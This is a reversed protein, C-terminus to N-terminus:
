IFFDKTDELKIGLLMQNRIVNKLMQNSSHNMALLERIRRSTNPRIGIIKNDQHQLATLDILTSIGSQNVKHQQSLTDNPFSFDHRITDIFFRIYYQGLELNSFAYHGALGESTTSTFTVRLPIGTKNYLVVGIDNTEETRQITSLYQGNESEDWFVFGSIRGMSEDASVIQVGVKDPEIALLHQSIGQTDTYLVDAAFSNWAIANAPVGYPALAKFLLSITEGPLLPQDVVEIKVSQIDRLTDPSGSIWSDSSGIRNFENGFRIPDQSTSYSTRFAFADNSQINPMNSDYIKQTTVESTLTLPFQSERNISPDIIASDMVHPLIDIFEISDLDANGTNKLTIRYLVEEGALTSALTDQPVFNEDLLGKVEKRSSVSVFFLIINTFISSQAYFDTTSSTYRRLMGISDEYITVNSAVEGSSNITDLLFFSQINGRATSRAKVTFTLTLRAKQNYEVTTAHDFSFVLLTDSKENYDPIIVPDSIMPTIADEFYDTLSVQVDGIYELEQPLFFLFVPTHLRSGRCNAGITYHFREGPRIPQTGVSSTFTPTLICIDQILTTRNTQNTSATANAYYALDMQCLLMSGLAASTKVRGDLMPARKTIMGVPLSPFEWTITRLFDNNAIMDSTMDSIMITSNTNTNYTGFSGTVGSNTRYSITYNMDVLEDLEYLAYQGTTLSAFVVAEPLTVMWQLTNLSQNGANAINFSYHILQNPLTYEPGYLSFATKYIPTSITTNDLFEEQLIDDIYWLIDTGYDQDTETSDLIKVRYIFTYTEGHFQPLSFTLVNDIISGQIGDQSLDTFDGSSADKGIVAYTDDMQFADKCNCTIKINSIRAGLDGYNKLSIRYYIVGSPAADITPIIQEQIIQFNPNVLLQIPTSEYSAYRVNNIWLEPSIVVSTENTTSPTFVAGIGLRVAIGLDSISGFEFTYLTGEEQLRQTVNKVPEQIDGLYVTLSSPFLIRISANEISAQIGNFSAHVTYIFVDQYTGQTRNIQTILKAM